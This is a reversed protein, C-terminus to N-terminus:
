QVYFLLHLFINQRVMVQLFFSKGGILLNKNYCIPTQYPNPKISILM